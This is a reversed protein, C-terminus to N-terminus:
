NLKRDFQHIASGETEVKLKKEASLMDTRIVESSSHFYVGFNMRKLKQKESPEIIEKQSAKLAMALRNLVAMSQMGTEKAAEHLTEINAQTLGYYYVCRELFPTNRPDVNNVATALHDHVNMSLYFLKEELDQNPIFAQIDLHVRDEDDLKVVGLNLWEDLVPRARFDKSITAVLAEFSMEGGASALRPLPLPHSHEDLYSPNRLWQGIVQSTLSLNRTEPQADLNDSRLRRVDKRHVGTLLTIRSDTQPKNGLKFEEDAVSVYVRKLEELMMNYKIDNDLLLRILPRLIRRIALLLLNRTRRESGNTENMMPINMKHTIKALSSQNYM